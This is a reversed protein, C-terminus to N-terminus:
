HQAHWRRAVEEEDPQWAIAAATLLTPAAWWMGIFWCLAATAVMLVAIWKM